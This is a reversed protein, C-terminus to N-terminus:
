SVYKSQCARVTLRFGRLHGVAGWDGFRRLNGMEGAGDDNRTGVDRCALPGQAAAGGADLRVVKGVYLLALSRLLRLLLLLLLLLLRLCADGDTM